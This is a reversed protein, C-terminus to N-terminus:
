CLQYGSFVENCVALIPAESWVYFVTFQKETTYPQEIIEGM